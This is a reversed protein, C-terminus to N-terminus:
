EGDDLVEYEAERPRITVSNMIGFDLELRAVPSGSAPGNSISDVVATFEAGYEGGDTVRIRAGEGFPFAASAAERDDHQTDSVPRGEM